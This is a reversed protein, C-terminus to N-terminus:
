DSLRLGSAYALELIAQDRLNEPTEPNEPALLKEIEANTL